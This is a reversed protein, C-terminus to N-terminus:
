LAVNSVALPFKPHASHPTNLEVVSPVPLISLRLTALRPVFVEAAEHDSLTVIENDYNRPTVCAPRIIRVNTRTAVDLASCIARFYTHTSLQLEGGM